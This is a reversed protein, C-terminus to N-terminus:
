GAQGMGLRTRLETPTDYELVKGFVALGLIDDIEKARALKAAATGLNLISDLLALAETQESPTLPVGTVEAIIAGARPKTISGRAVEGMMAGFFRVEIRGEVINGLDDRGILREYLSM